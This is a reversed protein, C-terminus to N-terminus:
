ERGVNGELGNREWRWECHRLREGTRIVDRLGHVRGVEGLHERGRRITNRESDAVYVEAVRRLRTYVDRAGLRM